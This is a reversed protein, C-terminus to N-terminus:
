GESGLNNKKSFYEFTNQNIIKGNEIQIISDCSSLTSIRHAIIIVTLNEDLETISKMVEIETSGDLASTAEDLLLVKAGKYLARAIGIRQRQGGSINTADEYIISDIGNDLSEVFNNLSSLEIAKKIKIPYTM